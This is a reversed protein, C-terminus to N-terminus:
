DTDRAGKRERERGGRGGERGKEGERERWGGREEFLNLTHTLTYCSPEPLNKFGGPVSAWM